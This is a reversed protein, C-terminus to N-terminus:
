GREIVIITDPGTVTIEETSVAVGNRMKTYKVPTNAGLLKVQKIKMKGDPLLIVNADPAKFLHLYIFKNNQTTVGWDQPKLPGGRTGYISEGYQQLWKGAGALTDTFESQILGTPMPGVNLLLNADRGAAGALLRIVQETTKYRRDTINYGWAGNLTECTELPLADSPKQFSLGSRNEGPLDREFMQFDEGAFPTMHHNNGILCQPQLKHILAYIENYKWDIRSSRDSEGEPNTQDWHGDFWICMIEGYNTLLETLQNKMFQLYSAYDGKGTRGTGQGTRGTQWPYDSRTWDLLSYYLGLKIGQKRCEEALLKLVDKGYPTNTIKWDSYKTDWNSFGDHHRTIFVIYKMGANKATAVWQAANFDVPNFARLLRTYDVVKINRNNMVWEGDALMSSLGWHIFMGFKDAQYQQRAQLNQPAPTYAAQDNTVSQSFVCTSILLFSVISAIHHKM